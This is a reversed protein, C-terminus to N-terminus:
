KCNKKQIHMSTKEPTSLFSVPASFTYNYIDYVHKSIAVNKFVPTYIYIYIYTYTYIYIYIYIYIYTYIYIYIDTISNSFLPKSKEKVINFKM